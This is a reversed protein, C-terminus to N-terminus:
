TAGGRGGTPLPQPHPSADLADLVVQMVGDLNGDVENNWFRLLAFGESQFWADRAADEAGGHQGGDVEIALKRGFDVFDAVFRGVPAQRRFNLGLRHNLDRLHAWLKREQATMEHRLRRANARTHPSIDTM